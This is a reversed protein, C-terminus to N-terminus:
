KAFSRFADYYMNIRLMEGAVGGDFDQRRAGGIVDRPAVIQRYAELRDVADRDPPELDFVLAIRDHEPVSRRAHEVFPM